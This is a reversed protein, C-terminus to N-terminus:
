TQEYIPSWTVCKYQAHANGQSWLSTGSSACSIDTRWSCLGQDTTCLLLGSVSETVTVQTPAKCPCFVKKLPVWISDAFRGPVSSTSQVQVGAGQCHGEFPIYVGRWQRYINEKKDDNLLSGKGKGTSFSGLSLMLFGGNLASFVAGFPM